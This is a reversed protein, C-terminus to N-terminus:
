FPHGSLNLVPTRISWFVCKEHFEDRANKLLGEKCVLFIKEQEEDSKIVLGSFDIECVVDWNIPQEFRIKYIRWVM